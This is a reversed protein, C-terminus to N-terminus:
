SLPTATNSGAPCTLWGQVSWKGSAMDTFVIRDGIQGGTTTGNLTITDTDSTGLMTFDVAATLDVDHLNLHGHFVDSGNKQIVYNSTNVVEVIFEYRDGSGTAAPMTITVAAGTKNLKLLKGAHATRTLTASATLTPAFPDSRAHLAERLAADLATLDGTAAVQLLAKIETASRAM